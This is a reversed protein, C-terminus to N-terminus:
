EVLLSILSDDVQSDIGLLTDYSLSGENLLLSIALILIAAIGSIAIRTFIFDFTRIFERGAILSKGAKSIRSMLVTRFDPSFNYDPLVEKVIVNRDKDGLEETLASLVLEKLKEPKM